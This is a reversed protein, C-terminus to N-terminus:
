LPENSKIRTLIQRFIHLDGKKLGCKERLFKFMHLNCPDLKTFNLKNNEFFISLDHTMECNQDGFNGGIVLASLSQDGFNNTEKGKKDLKHTTETSCTACLKVNQTVKRQGTLIHESVFHYFVQGKFIRYHACISGSIIEQLLGCDQLYQVTSYFGLFSKEQNQDDGYSIFAQPLSVKDPGSKVLGLRESLQGRSMEKAEEVMSRDTIDLDNVVM